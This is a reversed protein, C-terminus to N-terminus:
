QKSNVKLTFGNTEITGKSTLSSVSSDGTLNWTSDKEIVVNVVGGENKIAGTFGSTGTFHINISSDKDILIAGETEQDKLNLVVKSSNVVSMFNGAKDTNNLSTQSLNIEVDASAVDFINAKSTELISNNIDLKAKSNQIKITSAKKSILNTGKLAATGGEVRLAESSNSTLETDNLNISASSFAAPSDDGSTMYTGGNINVTGKSIACVAPSAKGSTTVTLDKAEIKGEAVVLGGSNESLTMITTDTLNVNGGEEGGVYVAHAFQADTSIVTDGTINIKSKKSAFVAANTGTSINDDAKDKESPAGRKLVTIDEYSKESGDTLPLSHVGWETASAIVRADEDPEEPEEAEEPESEEESAKSQTEVVAPASPAPPAPNNNNDGGLCGSLAFILLAMVFLGFFKKLKM